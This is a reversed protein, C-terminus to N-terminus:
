VNSRMRIDSACEAKIKAYETWDHPPNKPEILDACAEREALVARLAVEKAFDEYLGGTLGTAGYEEEVERCIRELVDTLNAGKARSQAILSENEKKHECM